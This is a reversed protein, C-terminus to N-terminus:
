DGYRDAPKRRAPDAGRPIVLQGRHRVFGAAPDQMKPRFRRRRREARNLPPPEEQEDM